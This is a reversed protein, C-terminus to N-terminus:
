RVRIFLVKAYSYGGDLRIMDRTYWTTDVIVWKTSKYDINNKRYIKSEYGLLPMSHGNLTIRSNNLRVRSRADFLLPNNVKIYSKIRNFFPTSHNKAGMDGTLMYSPKTAIYASGRTSNRKLQRSLEGSLKRDIYRWSTGSYLSNLRKRLRHYNLIMAVSIPTCRGDKSLGRDNIASTGNNLLQVRNSWQDRTSNHSVGWIYRRETRTTERNYSSYYTRYRTYYRYGRLEVQTLSSDNVDELKTNNVELSKAYDVTVKTCNVENKKGDLEKYELWEEVKEEETVTQFTDLDFTSLEVKDSELELLFESKTTLNTENDDIIRQIETEVVSLSEEIEEQLLEKQNDLLYMSDEIDEENLQTLNNEDFKKMRSFILYTGLKNGNGDEFTHYLNSPALDLSESIKIKSYGSNQFKKLLKLKNSYYSSLGGFKQLQASYDITAGYLYSKFSFKSTQNNEILKFLTQENIIYDGEIFTFLVVSNRGKVDSFLQSHVLTMTSNQDAAEEQAEYLAAKYINDLFNIKADGYLTVDGDIEANGMINVEGLSTFDGSGHLRGILVLKDVNITNNVILAKSFPTGSNINLEGTANLEGEVMLTGKVFLETSNIDLSTEVKIPLDIEIKDGSITWQNNKFTLKINDFSLNTDNQDKIKHLAVGDKTLVYYEDLLATNLYEGVKLARIQSFTNEENNSEYDFSRIVAQSVDNSASIKGSIDLSRPEAEIEGFAIVDGLPGDTTLTKKADINGSAVLAHERLEEPESEVTQVETERKIYVEEPEEVSEESSVVEIQTESVEEVEEEKPEEIVAETENSAKSGDDTNFAM